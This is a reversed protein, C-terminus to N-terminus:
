GAVMTAGTHKATGRYVKIYDVFGKWQSWNPTSGLFGSLSGFLAIGATSGDGAAMLPTAELFPSTFTHVLAEDVYFRLSTLDDAVAVRFWTVDPPSVSQSRSVSGGGAGTTRSWAFEMLTVSFNVGWDTSFM